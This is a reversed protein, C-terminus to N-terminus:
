KEPWAIWGAHSSFPAHVLSAMVPRRREIGPTPDIGIRTTRGADRDDVGAITICAM